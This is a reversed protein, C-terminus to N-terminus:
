IAKQPPFKYSFFLLLKKEQDLDQKRKEKIKEHKRKKLQFLEHKRKKRPVFRLKDRKKEIFREKIFKWRQTFINLKIANLIKLM